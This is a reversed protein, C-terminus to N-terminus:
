HCQASCSSYRFICCLISISELGFIQMENVFRVDKSIPHQADAQTIKKYTHRYVNQCCYFQMPHDGPLVVIFKKFYDHLKSNVFLQMGTEFDKNNKLPMEKFEILYLNEMCRLKKVNESQQYEHTNLRQKTMKPDFFADKLWAPMVSAYTSRFRHMNEQGTFYKICARTDVRVPDHLKTAKIDRFIRIIATGMHTATSQKPSDPCQLTHINHYDDM